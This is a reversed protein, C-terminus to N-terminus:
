LICLVLILDQCNAEIAMYCCLNRGSPGPRKSLELNTTYNNTKRIQEFPQEIGLKNRWCRFVTRDNDFIYMELKM